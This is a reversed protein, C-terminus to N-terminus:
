EMQPLIMKQQPPSLSGARHMVPHKAAARLEVEEGATFWFHVWISGFTGQPVFNGWRSGSAELFFSRM